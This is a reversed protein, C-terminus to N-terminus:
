FRFRSMQCKSFEIQAISVKGNMQSVEYTLRNLKGSM